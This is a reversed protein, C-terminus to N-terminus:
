FGGAWVCRGSVAHTNPQRDKFLQINHSPRIDLTNCGMIVLEEVDNSKQPVNQCM